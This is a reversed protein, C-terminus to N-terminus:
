QIMNRPNKTDTGQQPLVDTQLTHNQQEDLLVM